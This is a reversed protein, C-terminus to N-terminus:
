LKSSRRHCDLNDKYMTYIKYKIYVHVKMYLM